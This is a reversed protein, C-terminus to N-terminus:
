GLRKVPMVALINETRFIRPANRELCYAKVAEWKISQVRIKRQSMKGDKGLYIIEVTQGVYKDIM